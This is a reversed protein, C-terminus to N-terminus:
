NGLPVALSNTRRLVMSCNWRIDANTGILDLNEFVTMHPGLKKRLLSRVGENTVVRNINAVLLLEHRRFLYEQAKQVRAM